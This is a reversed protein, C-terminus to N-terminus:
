AMGRRPRRVSEVTIEEVVGCRGYVPATHGVRM